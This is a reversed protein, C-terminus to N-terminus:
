KCVSLRTSTQLDDCFLQNSQDGTFLIPGEPKQPQVSFRYMATGFESDQAHVEYTM